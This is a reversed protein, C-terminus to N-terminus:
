RFSIFGSTPVASSGNSSSDSIDKRGSIVFVLRYFRRYLARITPQPAGPVRQIFFLMWACFCLIKEDTM